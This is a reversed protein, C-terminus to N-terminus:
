ERRRLRLTVATAIPTGQEYFNGVQESVRGGLLYHAHTAPDYAATHDRRRLPDDGDLHEWAPAAPDCVWVQGSTAPGPLEIRLGGVLVLARQDADFTLSAGELSPPRQGKIEVERWRTAALDLEWLRRDSTDAGIGRGGFLYAKRGAPGTTMMAHWRAPPRPGTPQVSHWRGTALDYRWLDDLPTYAEAGPGTDGGFLYLCDSGPDAILCAGNRAPPSPGEAPARDWRATEAALKSRLLTGEPGAAGLAWGGFLYLDQRKADVALAPVFVAESAVECPVTETQHSAVAYSLFHRFPQYPPTFGGWVLIRGRPGDLVAAQAFGIEPCPRMECDIAWSASDVALTQVEAPRSRCGALLACLVLVGASRRSVV